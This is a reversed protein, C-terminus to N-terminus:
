NLYILFPYAVFPIWTGFFWKSNLNDLRGLSSHLCAMRHSETMMESSHFEITEVIVTFMM